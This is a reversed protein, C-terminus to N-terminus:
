VTECSREGVTKVKSFIFMATYGGHGTARMVSDATGGADGFLM